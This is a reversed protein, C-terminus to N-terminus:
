LDKRLFKGIEVWSGQQLSAYCVSIDRLTAKHREFFGLLEHDFTRIGRISLRKLKKWVHQRGLLLILRKCDKGLDIELDELDEAPFIIKTVSTKEIRGTALGVLPENVIKLKITKCNRFVLAARRNLERDGLTSVSIGTGIDTAGAKFSLIKVDALYAANVLAAFARSYVATGNDGGFEEPRSHDIVSDFELVMPHLIKDSLVLGELRPFRIFATALRATYDSSTQFEYWEDACIQFISMSKEYARRSVAGDLVESYRINEEELRRQFEPWVMDEIDYWSIDLRVERVYRALNPRRAIEHLHCLSHRSPEVLINQFLFEEALQAFSSQVLRLSKLDATSDVCRFIERVIEPSVTEM